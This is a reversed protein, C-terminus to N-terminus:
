EAIVSQHQERASCVAVV